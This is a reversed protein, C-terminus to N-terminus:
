SFLKDIGTVFLMFILTGLICFVTEKDGEGFNEFIKM